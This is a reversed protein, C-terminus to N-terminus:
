NCLGLLFILIIKFYIDDIFIEQFIMKTEHTNLHYMPGM